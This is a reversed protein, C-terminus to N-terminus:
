PFNLINENNKYFDSYNSHTKESRRREKKAGNLRCFRVRADSPKLANFSEM